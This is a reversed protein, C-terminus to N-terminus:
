HLIANFHFHFHFSQRNGPGKWELMGKQFWHRLPKPLTFSVAWGLYLLTFGSLRFITVRDGETKLPQFTFKLPKLDHTNEEPGTCFRINEEPGTCFMNNEEPGTCFM